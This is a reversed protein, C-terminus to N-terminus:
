NVLGLGPLRRPSCAVTRCAAPHTPTPRPTPHPAPPSALSTSGKHRRGPRKTQEALGEDAWQCTPGV